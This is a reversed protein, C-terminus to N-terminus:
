CSLPGQLVIGDAQLMIAGLRSALWEGQRSVAPERRCEICAWGATRGILPSDTGIVRRTM